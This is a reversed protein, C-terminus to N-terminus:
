NGSSNIGPMRSCDNKNPDCSALFMLITNAGRLHIRKDVDEFRTRHYDADFRAAHILYKYTNSHPELIREITM